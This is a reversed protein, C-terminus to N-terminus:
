KDDDNKKLGNRYAAEFRLMIKNVEKTEKKVKAVLYNFPVLTMLAVTLGAATTILAQAIGGTVAKPDEIGSHGLLDFSDIIGLVTGLIGFLPAMTIITDLIDLGREMREIEDEAAVEMGERLGYDRNALGSILIRASSDLGDIEDTRGYSSHLVRHHDGAETQRFIKELRNNDRRRKERRWFLIREISITLSVISCLLLPWMLPGGRIFMDRM